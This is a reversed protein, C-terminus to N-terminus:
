GIKIWLSLQYVFSIGNLMSHLWVGHWVNKSRYVIYGLFLGMIFQENVTASISGWLDNFYPSKTNFYRMPIHYSSFLLASFFISLGPNQSLRMISKFVIGRFFFEEWFGVIVFMYLISIPFYVLIKWTSAIALIQASDRVAFLLFPLVIIGTLIVVWFDKFINKWRFGIVVLREHFARLLLIPILFQVLWYSVSSGLLHVFFISVFYLLAYVLLVRATTKNLENEEFGHKRYIWAYILCPLILLLILGFEFDHKLYLTTGLYIGLALISFGLVSSRMSNLIAFKM